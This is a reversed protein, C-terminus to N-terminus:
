DRPAVKCHAVLNGQSDLLRIEDQPIDQLVKIIHGEFLAPIGARLLEKDAVIHLRDRNFLRIDAYNNNHMLFTEGIPATGLMGLLHDLTVPPIIPYLSTM